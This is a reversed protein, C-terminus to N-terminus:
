SQDQTKRWELYWKATTEIGEELSHPASGLLAETKDIPSIYDVTMSKLRSSTILFPKRTIASIGDGVLALGKIVFLPIRWPKKGRLAECFGISWRDIRIPHDGVYFVQEHVDEKKADLLGM